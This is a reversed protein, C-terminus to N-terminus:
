DKTAIWLLGVLALAGAFAVAIWVVDQSKIGISSSGGGASAASRASSTATQGSGGGGSVGGGGGFLSLFNM